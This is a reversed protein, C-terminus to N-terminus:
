PRALRGSRRVALRVAPNPDERLAALAAEEYGAARWARVAPLRVTAYMDNLAATLTDKVEAADGYAGLARVAEGRVRPDTDAAAALFPAPDVPRVAHLAALAWRTVTRSEDRTLPALAATLAGRHEALAAPPFKMVLWLTFRLDYVRTGALDAVVEPLEGAAYGEALLVPGLEEVTPPRANALAEALHPLAPPGAGLLPRHTASANFLGANRAFVPLLADPLPGAAAVAALLERSPRAPHSYSHGQRGYQYRTLHPVLKARAPAARSGMPELVRLVMQLDDEVASWRDSWRDFAPTQEASWDTPPPLNPLDEPVAPIRDFVLPPLAPHGPDIRAVFQAVWLRLEGDGWSEEEAEIKAGAEGLLPVLRPLQSKAAPGMEGLAAVASWRWEDDDVLSGVAEAFGFADAGWEMDQLRDLLHYTQGRVLREAHPALATRIAAARDPSRSLAALDEGLRSANEFDHDWNFAIVRPILAPVVLDGAEGLEGLAEIAATRVAPDADDTAARRLAAVAAPRDYVATGFREEWLFGAGVAEAAAARVRPAPHDLLRLVAGLTPVRHRAQYWFSRAFEAARDADDFEPEAAALVAAAVAPDPAAPDHPRYPTAWALARWGVTRLASDDATVASVIAPVADPGLATVADAAMHHGKGDVREWAALLDLMHPAADRAAPGAEAVRDFAAEWDPPPVLLLVCLAAPM